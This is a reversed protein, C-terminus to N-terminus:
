ACRSEWSVLATRVFDHTRQELTTVATRMRSVNLRVDELGQGNLAPNRATQALLPFLTGPM